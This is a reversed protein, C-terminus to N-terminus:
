RLTVQVMANTCWGCDVVAVRIKTRAPLTSYAATLKGYDDLTGAATLKVWTDTAPKRAYIVVDGDVPIRQGKSNVAMIKATIRTPLVYRGDRRVRVNSLVTRSRTITFTGPPFPVTVDMLRDNPGSGLYLTNLEGSVTFVSTRDGSGYGDFAAEDRLAGRAPTGTGSMEYVQLEDVVGPSTASLEVALDVLSADPPTKVYTITVPVTVDGPGDLFVDPISYTASAYATSASSDGAWASSGSM